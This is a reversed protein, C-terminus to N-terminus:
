DEGFILPLLAIGFNFSAGVSLHVVNDITSNPDAFPIGNFFIFHRVDTRVSFWDTVFFRLGAGYDPAPRFSGDSYYGVAAGLVFYLETYILARNFLAYKGYIPKIVLNSQGFVTIQDLADPAVAFREVLQTRLDTDVNFSYSGGGVEWAIFEDLHLTYRFTGSLGKYFADLPVLGASFTFEHGLDFARNQIVVAQGGGVEDDYEAAAGTAGVMSVLVALASVLAANRRRPRANQLSRDRLVRPVNMCHM